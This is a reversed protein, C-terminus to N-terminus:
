RGNALCPKLSIFREVLRVVIGGGDALTGLPFYASHLYRLVVNRLQVTQWGVICEHLGFGTLNSFFFLFGSVSLANLVM